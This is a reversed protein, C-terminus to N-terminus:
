LKSFVRSSSFQCPPHTAFVKNQFPSDPKLKIVDDFWICLLWSLLKRRKFWINNARHRDHWELVSTTRNAHRENPQAVVVLLSSPGM